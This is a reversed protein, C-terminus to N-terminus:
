KNKALRKQVADQLIGDANRLIRYRYKHIRMIAFAHNYFPKSQSTGKSLEILSSRLAVNLGALKQRLNRAGSFKGTHVPNRAGNKQYLFVPALFQCSYSM